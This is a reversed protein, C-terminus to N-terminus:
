FYDCDIAWKNEFNNYVKFYYRVGNLIFYYGRKTQKYKIIHFKGEYEFRIQQHTISLACGSKIEKGNNIAILELRNM